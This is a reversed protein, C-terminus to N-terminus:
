QLKLNRFISVLEGVQTSRTHLSGPNAIFRASCSMIEDTIELNNERLTTGTQTIDVIQDAVGILPAIEINGNLKVVEVQLGRDVFHREAIRPYKTAVRIVGLHSYIEEVDMRADTPQAVVMRCEGFGLDVLEVVAASLEVLVDSGAVGVDAAGSAVYIPIDSPKGILFEIEGSTIILQRGCEELDRTVMGAAALLRVTDPFLAGKTVAFRLRNRLTTLSPTTSRKVIM